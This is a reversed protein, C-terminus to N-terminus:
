KRNRRASQIAKELAELFRSRDRSGFAAPGRTMEGAGRLDALLTRTALADGINDETFPRGTHGLAYAGNALCRAALPIDGTVVIDGREVHGAIWDDAADFGQDVVVLRIRPDDPIRMWAGAVLTVPLTHRAAVRFVEQKVPCADADVYIHVAADM